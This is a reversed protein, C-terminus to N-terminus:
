PLYDKIVRRIRLLLRLELLTCALSFPLLFCALSHSNLFRSSPVASGTNRLVLLSGPIALTVYVAAAMILVLCSTALDDSKFYRAVGQLFFALTAVQLCWFLYSLTQHLKIKLLFRDVDKRAKAEIEKLLREMAQPGEEKLSRQITEQLAKQEAEVEEMVKAREKEINRPDSARALELMSYAHLIMPALALALNVLALRKPWGGLPIFTCFVYGASPLFQLCLLLMSLWSFTWGAIALLSTLLPIVLAVVLLLLGLRVKRWASQHRPDPLPDLGEDGAQPRRRPLPRAAPPRAAGASARKEVPPGERAQPHDEPPTKGPTLAPVAM